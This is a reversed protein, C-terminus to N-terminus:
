YVSFCEHNEADKMKKYAHHCDPVSCILMRRKVLKRQCDPAAFCSGGIEEKPLWYLCGQCWAVLQSTFIRALDTMRSRKVIPVCGGPTLQTSGVLLGSPRLEIGTDFGM